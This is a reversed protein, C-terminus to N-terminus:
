NKLEVSVNKYISPNDATILVYKDRDTEDALNRCTHFLKTVTSASDCGFWFYYYNKCHDILKSLFLEEDNIKIAAINLYKKYENEIYIKSKDSRHKLLEFVADNILADSVIIKHCNKIVRILLCYVKKLKNNLTDNHTLSEIFSAIEDIYVIYDALEENSLKEYILLSNICCVINDNSVNKALDQYSILKIQHDSFTKIHQDAMTIRPVISLVKFQHSNSTLYKDIHKATATTKGTGTTSKIIITENDKFYKYNFAENDNDDVLYKSNFKLKTCKIIQTLQHYPKFTSITDVSVEKLKDVLHIL